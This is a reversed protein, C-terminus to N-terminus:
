PRFALRAIALVMKANVSMEVLVGRVMVKSGASTAVARSFPTLQAAGLVEDIEAAYAATANPKSALLDSNTVIYQNPNARQNQGTFVIQEPAFSYQKGGAEFHLFAAEALRGPDEAVQGTAKRIATNFKYQGLTVPSMHTPEAGAPGLLSVQMGDVFKKKQGNKLELRINTAVEPEGFQLGPPLEIPKNMADLLQEPAKVREAPTLKQWQAAIRNLEATEGRAWTRLDALLQQNGDIMWEVLEGALNSEYGQTSDLFERKTKARIGFESLFKFVRDRLVEVTPANFVSPHRDFEQFIRELEKAFNPFLRELEATRAAGAAFDRYVRLLEIATPKPAPPSVKPKVPEPLEAILEELAKAKPAFADFAAVKGTPAAM